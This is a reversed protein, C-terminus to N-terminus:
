DPGILLTLVGFYNGPTGAALDGAAFSIVLSANDTGGTCASGLSPLTGLTANGFTQAVNHTLQTAAGTTSVGSSEAWYVAYPMLEGGPGSLNFGGGASGQATISYRSNGVGPATRQKQVRIQSDALVIPGGALPNYTASLDNLASICFRDPSPQAAADPAALLLAAGVAWPAPALGAMLRNAKM